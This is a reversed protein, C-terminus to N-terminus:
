PESLVLAEILDVEEDPDVTRLDLVLADDQIRAVVPTARGDAPARLRAEWEVVSATGTGGPRIVLLLTALDEAPAAGGGVRSAGERTEILHRAGFRLRLAEAMRSARLGIEERTAFVMRLVPVSERPTGRVYADLTAELAAITLKDLRLVRYLPSKKMRDILDHRGLLVGAQPGGLMKDASFSVIDAGDDLLSRVTAEDKIGAPAMDLLCGSGQDVLLPLAHRKKLEALAAVDVDQTFGIIRYNSPHVKLIMGTDPGVAQEYDSLRTRNTTGVERLRAGSSAMVDPIRFSGGIEVLEGRSIIVERGEALTKLALFVAAANNNVALAAQDPFLFGLRREIHSSRSGRQGADLEYELTTYSSAVAAVRARAEESLPARGLNTHVVVGTANVVRRLSSETRRRVAKGLLSTLEALLEPGETPDGEVEGMRSRIRAVIERIAEAVLARGHTEVLPQVDKRRLVADVAPIRRYASAREEGVGEESRKWARRGTQNM